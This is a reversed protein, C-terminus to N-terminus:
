FLRVSHKVVAKSSDAAFRDEKLAQILAVYAALSASASPPSSPPENEM